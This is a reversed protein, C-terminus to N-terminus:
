RPEPPWLVSLLRGTVEGINAHEAVGRTWVRAAPLGVMAGVEVIAARILADRRVPEMGVKPM